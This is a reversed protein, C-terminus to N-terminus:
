PTQRGPRVKFKGGRSIKTEYGLIKKVVKKKLVSEIKGGGLLAARPPGGGDGGGRAVGSTSVAYSLVAALCLKPYFTCWCKM